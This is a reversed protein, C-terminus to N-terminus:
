RFLGKERAKSERSPELRGRAPEALVPPTEWTAAPYLALNMADLDDPSRGLRDKTREKPEIELQGRQNIRYIPSVAQQRLLALSERPLRGLHVISEKAMEVASFWLETRLNRFDGDNVMSGSLGIFNYDERM